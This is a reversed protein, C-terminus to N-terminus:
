FFSKVLYILLLLNVNVGFKLNKSLSYLGEYISIVDDVMDVVFSEVYKPPTFTIPFMHKKIIDAEMDNISFYRKANELAVEPHKRLRSYSNDDSVEDFFFDHLIAAKTASYYNLKMGKTVVYTYYAVRMSHNYRDIGHHIYDKLELVKDHEIYKKFEDKFNKRKDRM